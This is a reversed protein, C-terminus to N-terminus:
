SKVPGLRALGAEARVGDIHARVTDELGTVTWDFERVARSNDFTGPYSPRREPTPYEIRADPVISKVVDALESMTVNHASALYTTHAPRAGTILRALLVALDDVAIVNDRADAGYPVLGAEGVAVREIFRSPWITSGPGLISSPRVKVVELGYLGAYRDCISENLAKMRGYMSAPALLEDETVAREGYMTQPGYTGVTSLFAIRHTGALRAAELVNTIGIVNVQCAQLIDSYQPSMLPGMIYSLLAIGSVEHDQLLALVQDIRSIDATVYPVGEVPPTRPPAVDCAVVAHGDAALRGVLRRGVLGSSGLVLVSM